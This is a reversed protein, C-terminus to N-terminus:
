QPKYQIADATELLLCAPCLLSPFTEEVGQLDTGGIRNTHALAEWRSKYPYSKITLLGASCKNAVISGENVQENIKILYDGAEWDAGLGVEAPQNASVTKCENRLKGSQDHLEVAYNNRGGKDHKRRTGEITVTIPEDPSPKDPSVSVKPFYHSVYIPVREIFRVPDKRM